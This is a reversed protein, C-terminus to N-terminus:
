ILFRELPGRDRAVKKGKKKGRQRGLFSIKEVVARKLLRDNEL